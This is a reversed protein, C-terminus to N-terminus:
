RFKLVIRLHNTGFPIRSCIPSDVYNCSYLSAFSDVTCLIPPHDSCPIKHYQTTTQWYLGKSGGCVMTLSFRGQFQILFSRCVMYWGCALSDYANWLQRALSPGQLAPFWHQLTPVSSNPGGFSKKFAGLVRQTVMIQHSSVHM